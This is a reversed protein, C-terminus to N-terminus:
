RIPPNTQLEQVEAKHDGGFWSNGSQIKAHISVMGASGPRVTIDGARTLVELDVNGSVQFSRDFTGIVSAFAALSTALVFVLTRTAQHRFMSPNTM